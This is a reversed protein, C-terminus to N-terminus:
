VVSKRDEVKNGLPYDVSDIKYQKETLLSTAYYEDGKQMSPIVHKSTIITYKNGKKGIITGTGDSSPTQIIVIQKKLNLQPDLTKAITKQPQLLVIGIISTLFFSGKLLKARIKRIQNITKM